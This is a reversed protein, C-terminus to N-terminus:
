DENFFNDRTYFEMLHVDKPNLMSGDDLIAAKSRANFHKGMSSWKIKNYCYNDDKTLEYIIDRFAKKDVKESFPMLLNNASWEQINHSQFFTEYHSDPHIRIKFKEKAHQWRFNFNFWWSFDNNNDIPRPSQKATLMILDYWKNSHDKSMGLNRFVKTINDRTPKNKLFKNGFMSIMKSALLGSVIHDAHEGQTIVGDPPLFKAEQTFKETALLQFNKVIFNKFFNPNEKIGDNDCVVIIQEKSVDALIFSSMVLTSDIGGSWMVYIKKNYSALQNARDICVTKFDSTSNKFKGYRYENRVSTRFPWKITDTRDVWWTRRLLSRISKYCEIDPYQDKDYKIMDYSVWAFPAFFLSRM